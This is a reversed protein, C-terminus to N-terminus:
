AAQLGLIDATRHLTSRALDADEGLTHGVSPVLQQLQPLWSAYEEKFCRKLLGLMISVATSAGPSAGLLGSLSGDASAVVETGFQLIAKGHRKKMVQVRQGAVILTWDEDRAEPYFKRLTALRHARTAALETVLYKVLDLNKVGVGLLTGINHFRLSGPLDGWSGAMMFKPSFGAYPGFMLSHEGDVTRMDLHPVSMPPAGVEALGYVKAHHQSVVEPNHCQLFQGSIPFGGYGRLEPIGSTQLLHLAGGGAGVFVRRAHITSTMGSRMDRLNVVWGDPTWGFAASGHASRARVDRTLGTVETNYTADVQDDCMAFLQRTLSGFDVDTGATARTVALREDQSRGADMLPVWDAFQARDDSFEMGEFLPNTHLAEWRKRLFAVNDDGRVFSMHPVTNIFTSPESIRGSEVLASWYQRSLQFQENVRLAKKIDIVGDCEPTYNLECLASHGTGANAFPATSELAPADLREILGISWDPALQHLMSALTASMIGAGVLVVDYRQQM